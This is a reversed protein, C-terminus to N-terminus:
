KSAECGHEEASPPEVRSPAARSSTAAQDRIVSVAVDLSKFTVDSEDSEPSLKVNAFSISIKMGRLRFDRKSGWDPYKACDGTLNWLWVCARCTMDDENSPDLLSVPGLAGSKNISRIWCAFDGPMVEAWDYELDTNACRLLYLAAGRTDRIQLSLKATSADRFRYTRNIPQVAPWHAPKTVAQSSSHTSLLVILLVRVLQGSM